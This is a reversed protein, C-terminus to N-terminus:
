YDKGALDIARRLSPIPALDGLGEDCSAISWYRVHSFWGRWINTKVNMDRIGPGFLVDLPGGIMDGKLFFPNFFYLNTWVVCATWAAHHPVFTTRKMGEALQYNIENLFEGKSNNAAPPSTPFERQRAKQMFDDYGSALLLDAHALPCGMTVFNTVLWSHGNARLEKGAKQANSIWDDRWKNTLSKRYAAILKSKHKESLKEELDPPLEQQIQYLRAILAQAEELSEHQPKQSYGHQTSYRHWAYNLIDYGVISGLSHGVVIIRDYDNSKHLKDLLKVGAARINHRATINKPYPSLYTAADGVYSLVL